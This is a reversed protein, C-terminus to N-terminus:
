AGFEKEAELDEGAEVAFRMPLAVRVRTGQGPQSEIRLSGEHRTVWHRAVALGLGTGGLRTTFLPTTVQDLLEPEIGSGDDRIDVLLTPVSEGGPLVIRRDLTTRTEVGLTGPGEMAQLANRALNLFVQKLRDADLLLEPISPDYLRQIQLGVGGEEAAVLQLVDDLVRHVNVPGLVISDGETFVMLEDVLSAIRAAERVILEASERTREDESRSALLEAVGRIGALPNKVEHAIGAAFRGFASLREREGRERELSRNLTRDRLVVVAGTPESEGLPSVVVDVLLDEALRREVSCETEIAARGTSIAARALKALSHGPGLLREVPLGAVSEASTELIRCAADNIRAVNGEADTVLLGDLMADLVHQLDRAEM